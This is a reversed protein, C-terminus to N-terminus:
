SPKVKAENYKNSEKEKILEAADRETEYEKLLKSIFGIEERINNERVSLISLYVGLCFWIVMCALWLYAM